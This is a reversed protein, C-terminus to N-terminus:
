HCCNSWGGTQRDILRDIPPVFLTNYLFTVILCYVVSEVPRGAHYCKIDYFLM